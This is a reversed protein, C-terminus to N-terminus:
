IAAATAKTTKWHNTQKNKLLWIKMEDVATMDGAVEAFAELLLVHTEIPLEHWFWGRNYKWYMGLEKSRIAREDLSRMIDMATAHDGYRHLALALLGQQYM